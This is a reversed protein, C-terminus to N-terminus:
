ISCSALQRETSAPNLLLGTRGPAPARVRGSVHGAIFAADHGVGGILHSSRRYQFKLGLAYLGLVPTIGREHILEGTPDLADVHLWPYERRYGTAWIATAIGAADLDLSRPSGPLDVDPPRDDQNPWAGRWTREIHDDIRNLVRKMRRNADAINTQADAAFLARRGRFGELRGTVIVGLRDLVALDLQEGGGVGTLTFSPARRSADPSPVEDLTEDLSGIEKLWHWIDQGRYRRVM